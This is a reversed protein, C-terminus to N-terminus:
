SINNVLRNVKLYSSSPSTQSPRTDDVVKDLYGYLPSVRKLTVSFFCSGSFNSKRATHPDPGAGVAAVTM